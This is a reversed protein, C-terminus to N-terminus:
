GLFLFSSCCTSPIKMIIYVTADWPWTIWARGLYTTQRAQRNKRLGQGLDLSLFFGAGNPPLASSITCFRLIAESHPVVRGSPKTLEWGLRIQSGELSVRSDLFKFGSDCDAEWGLAGKVDNEHRKRGPDVEEGDAGDGGDGVQGLVVLFDDQGVLAARAGRADEEAGGVGVGDLVLGPHAVADHAQVVDEDGGHKRELADLDGAEDLGVLADPERRKHKGPARQRHHQARGLAQLLVPDGAPLARRLQKPQDTRDHRDDLRDRDPPHQHKRIPPERPLSRRVRRLRLQRYLHRQKNEVQHQQTHLGHHLEESRSILRRQLFELLDLRGVALIPDLHHSAGLFSSLDFPKTARPSLPKLTAHM